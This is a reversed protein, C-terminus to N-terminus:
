CTWVWPSHHFHKLVEHVQRPGVLADKLSLTRTPPKTNHVDVLILCLFHKTFESYIYELADVAFTNILRNFCIVRKFGLYYGDLTLDM